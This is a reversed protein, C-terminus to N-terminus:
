SRAAHGDPDEALAATQPLIFPIHAPPLAGVRLDLRFVSAVLADTLVSAPPGDAVVAGQALVVLRDAFGAALNLDHLVAVVGGGARAFERAIRLVAIQHRIDLSSIPEDLFLFCAPEGTIPTGAQCLVRALHVRQQEGGSLEGYVRAGFGLLEVRALAQSVAAADGGRGGADLGLRVVEAVTFPFSLASSQPLVARRRAIAAPSLRAMDAGDLWVRGSSPAIEGTALKLLTSKGAGNPGAIVTLEGAAFALATPHLAIRGRYALVADDLRIM